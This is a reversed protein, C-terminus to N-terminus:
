SAGYNVQAMHVIWAVGWIMLAAFAGVLVGYSITGKPSARGTTRFMSVVFFLGVCTLATPAEVGFTPTVFWGWMSRLAFAHIAMSGAALPIALLIDGIEKEDDKESM